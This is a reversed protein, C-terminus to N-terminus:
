DGFALQHLGERAFQTRPAEARLSGFRGAAWAGTSFVVAKRIAERRTILHKAISEPM